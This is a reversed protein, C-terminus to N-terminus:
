QHGSRHRQERGQGHDPDTAAPDPRGDSGADDEKQGDGQSCLGTCTYAVQYGVHNMACVIKFVNQFM